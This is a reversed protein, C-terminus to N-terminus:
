SSGSVRAPHIPIGAVAAAAMFVGAEHTDDGHGGTTVYLTRLDSGGFCVSTAGAPTPITEVHRGDADLVAVARGQTCAVWVSGDAAVAMGDPGEPGDAAFDWFRVKDVLSTPTELTYRWLASRGTEVVYLSRGDASFGMGNSAQYDPDLVHMSGDLDIVNLAGTRGEADHEFPSNTAFSGVYVRGDRDTTLDNYIFRGASEDRDGLLTTSQDLDKRSVNRGSVVFGGDVHPAMGGIGKRHEIVCTVEGDDTVFYVGGVRVDSFYVGRDGAVPAECLVFGSALETFASILTM